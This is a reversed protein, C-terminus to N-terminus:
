NVVVTVDASRGRSYQSDEYGVLHYTHEGPAATFSYSSGVYKSLILAEDEYIDFANMNFENYGSWSLTVTGSEADDTLFIPYFSTEASANQGYVKYGNITKYTEIFITDVNGEGGMIQGNQVYYGRCLGTIQASRSAGSVTITNPNLQAGNAYITFYDPNYESEWEVQIKNGNIQECKTITIPYDKWLLNLNVSASVKNGSYVSTSGSQARYPTVEFCYSAGETLGTVTYTVNSGSFQGVYQSMTTWSELNSGGDYPKRAIIYIKYYDVQFPNTITITASTLSEQQVSVSTNYRWSGGTSVTREASKGKVIAGNDMIYPTVTFTRSVTNVTDEVPFDYYNTEPSNGPIQISENVLFGEATSAGTWSLRCTGADVLEDYVSPATGFYPDTVRVSVPASVLSGVESTNNPNYPVLVYTHTGAPVNRIDLSRTSTNYELLHRVLVNGADTVECLNYYGEYKYYFTLTGAASHKISTITNKLNYKLTVPILESVATRGQSNTVTCRYNGVYYKNDRFGNDGSGQKQGDDFLIWSGYGWNVETWHEGDTTKEWQYTLTDGPICSVTVQISPESTDRQTKLELRQTQDTIALRYVSIAAVKSSESNGNNDAALCRYYYHDIYSETDQSLPAVFAYTPENAGTINTWTSLDRSIQWQYAVTSADTDAAASLTISDGDYVNQSQPHQSFVLNSVTLLAARTYGTRGYSSDSIFCRYYTGDLSESAAFSYSSTNATGGEVNTWTMLDTSTQWQYTEYGSHYPEISFTATGGPVTYVDYPRNIDTQYTYSGYVDSVISVVDSSVTLGAGDSVICRIQDGVDLGIRANSYYLDTGEYIDIGIASNSINMWTGGTDKCYQWQYSDSTIGPGQAVATLHFDLSSASTKYIMRAPQTTFVIPETQPHSYVTVTVPESAVENVLVRYETIGTNVVTFTYPEIQSVLTTWEGSAKVQWEVDVIESAEIGEVEYDLTLEDGVAPEIPEIAVTVSTPQPVEWVAYAVVDGDLLQVFTSIQGSIEWGVFRYGPRVPVEQETLDFMTYKPQDLFSKVGENSSEFVGGDANLYLNFGAGTITTNNRVALVVRGYSVDANEMVYATYSKEQQDGYFYTQPDIQQVAWCLYHNQSIDLATIYNEWCILGSLEQCNSVDLTRIKNYICM